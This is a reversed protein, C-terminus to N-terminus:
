RTYGWVFPTIFALYMILRCLNGMSEWGILDFINTLFFMAAWILLYAIPTGFSNLINKSENHSKFNMFQDELDIELQERYKESFEEGGM